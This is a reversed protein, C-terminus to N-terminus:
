NKTIYNKKRGEEKQVIAVVGASGPGHKPTV